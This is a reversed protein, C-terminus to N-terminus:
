PFNSPLNPPFEPYPFRRLPKSYFAQQFFLLILFLLILFYNNYFLFRYKHEIYAVKKSHPDMEAPKEYEPEVKEELEKGSKQNGRQKMSLVEEVTWHGTQQTLFFQISFPFLSRSILWMTRCAKIEYYTNTHPSYKWVLSLCLRWCGFKSNFFPSIFVFCFHSILFFLIFYGM